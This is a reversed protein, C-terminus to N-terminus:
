GAGQRQLVPRSGKSDDPKEIQCGKDRAGHLQDHCHRHVLALNAFTNNRSNGDQHHREILDDVAFFLGCFACRGRQHKLLKQKPASLGLYNSLRQGWYVWDGDYPSRTGAVKVYRVIKTDSHKPLLQDKGFRLGHITTQWYRNMRWRYGKSPHRWKAWKRLQHHLRNDMTNFVESSVVHAYYNSWGKIIPALAQIVIDQSVGRLQRLWQGTKQLHQQQAEKSPKILTKFGLPKDWM